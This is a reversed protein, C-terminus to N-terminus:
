WDQRSGQQGRQGSCVQFTIQSGDRYTWEPVDTHLPLTSTTPMLAPTLTAWNDGAFALSVVGDGAM